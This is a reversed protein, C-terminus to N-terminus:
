QSPRVAGWLGKPFDIPATNGFQKSAIEFNDKRGVRGYASLGARLRIVRPTPDENGIRSICCYAHRLDRHLRPPQFSSDEKVRDCIGTRVPPVFIRIKLYSRAVVTRNGSELRIM